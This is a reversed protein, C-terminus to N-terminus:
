FPPNRYLAHRKLRLLHNLVEAARLRLLNPLAFARPPQGGVDLADGKALERLKRRRRDQIVQPHRRAVAEFGELAVQRAPVADADIVLPADAEDPLVPVRVRGFDDIVM